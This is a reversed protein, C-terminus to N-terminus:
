LLKLNLFWVPIMLRGTSRQNLREGSLTGRHSAADVRAAIQAVQDGRKILVHDCNQGFHRV